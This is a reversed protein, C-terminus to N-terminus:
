NYMHQIDFCNLKSHCIVNKPPCPKKNVSQESPFSSDKVHCFSPVTKLLIDWVSFARKFKAKPIIMKRDIDEQPGYAGRLLKAKKLFNLKFSGKVM